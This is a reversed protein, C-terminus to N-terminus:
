RVRIWGTAMGVSGVQRPRRFRSLFSILDQLLPPHPSPSLSNSYLWKSMYSLLSTSYLHQVDNTWLIRKQDLSVHINSGRSFQHCIKASSINLRYFFGVWTECFFIDLRYFFVLGLFCPGHALIGISFALFGLPILGELRAWMSKLARSKGPFSGKGGGRASWLSLPGSFISFSFISFFYYPFPFYFFRDRV